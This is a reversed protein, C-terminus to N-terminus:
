IFYIIRNKLKVKVRALRARAAKESVGLREAIGAFSVNDVFYLKYIEFESENLGSLVEKTIAKIEPDSLEVADFPDRSDPVACALELPLNKATERTNKRWAKHLKHKATVMLWGLVNPHDRLKEYKEGAADFVAHACDAAADERFGLKPLVYAYVTQYHREYLERVFDERVPFVERM